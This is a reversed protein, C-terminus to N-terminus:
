EPQQRRAALDIGMILYPEPVGPFIYNAMLDVWGYRRYMDQALTHEQITSLVATEHPLGTLAANHLLRGIGLGQAAPIVALEVFEYADRMWRQAMGRDMGRVVVDYWWQGRGATYGYTFGVMEGHENRAVICRYDYRWVHTELTDAFAQVHLSTRNYPPPGFAEGYVWAIQSKYALTQEADLWVLDVAM